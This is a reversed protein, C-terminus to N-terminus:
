PSKLSPEPKIGPAGHIAMPPDLLTGGAPRGSLAAAAAHRRWGPERAVARAFSVSSADGLARAKRSLGVYQLEGAADYVAYVGPASPFASMEGKAMVPTAPTEKLSADRRQLAGRAAPGAPRPAALPAAARAHSFSSVPVAVSPRCSAGLAARSLLM